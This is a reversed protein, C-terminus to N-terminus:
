ILGEKRAALIIEEDSGKNLLFYDKIQAKRKDIASVSLPLVEHLNKTMMGKSLLLIIQRNYNDLYNEKASIKKIQARATQSFYNENGSMADYVDKFDEVKFDVKCILADPSFDKYLNYLFIAEVHSTLVLLKGMPSHAKIPTILDGGNYLNAHEDPPISWDLFIFDYPKTPKTTLLLRGEKCNKAVDVTQVPANMMEFMRLYGQVFLDHDEVVLVRM